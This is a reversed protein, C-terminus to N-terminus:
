KPHERTGKIRKSHAKILHSLTLLAVFFWGMSFRTLGTDRDPRSFTLFYDSFLQALLSHLVMGLAVLLTFIFSNLHRWHRFYMVLSVLALALVTIANLYSARIIHSSGLNRMAIDFNSLNYIGSYHGVTIQRKAMDWSVQYGAISADFGNAYLCGLTASLTLTGVIIWRPKARGIIWTLWFALILLISYSVGSAKIFTLSGAVFVWTIFGAPKWSANMLPLIAASFFLGAALWIDAYGALAINATVVSSSVILIAVILGWVLKGTVAWTFGIAAVLISCCLALWPTYLFLKGGNLLGTYAAWANLLHITSPHRLWQLASNDLSPNSEQWQIFQPARNAWYWVSDWSVSPRLAVEYAVFGFQLTLWAGFILILWKPETKTLEPRLTLHGIPTRNCHHRGAEGAIWCILMAAVMCAVLWISFVPLNRAQLQYMLLALLAYGVYCGLGIAILHLGPHWRKTQYLLAYVMVAGVFWPLLSLLLGSLATIM